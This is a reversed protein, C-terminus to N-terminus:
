NTFKKTGNPQYVYRFTYYRGTPDEKKPQPPADKYYSGIQMKAYKGNCTKFVLVKGAAPLIFHQTNNYTYWGNGSGQPIAFYPNEDIAYGTDPASVLDEFKTNSLIMGEAKGMGSSGSNVIISTTRFGIDWQTTASDKLSVTDGTAFSFLTFHGTSDVDAKLNTFEKAVIGNQPTVPNVSDKESCSVFTTSMLVGLFLIYKM